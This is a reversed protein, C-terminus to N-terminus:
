NDSSAAVNDERQKNRYAFAVIIITNKIKNEGSTNRVTRGNRREWSVRSRMHTTIQNAQPSATSEKGNAVRIDTKRKSAEHFL